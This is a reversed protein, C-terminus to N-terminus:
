PTTEETADVLPRPLHKWTLGWHIRGIAAAGVGFERALARHPEGAAARRIVEMVEPETLTPGAKGVLRPRRTLVEGARRERGNRSAKDAACRRCIRKGSPGHFTNEEDWSHGKSCASARANRATIGNGRLVNTANDVQELHAPNVCARNRCLHDITLGAAAEGFTLAYSVRHAHRHIKPSTLSFMGYGDSSMRGLWRWCDGGQDVKGMFRTRVAGDPDSIVLAKSGIM